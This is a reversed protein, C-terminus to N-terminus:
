LCYVCMGSFTGVFNYLLVACLEHSTVNYVIVNRFFRRMKCSIEIYQTMVVLDIQSLNQLPYVCIGSFTVECNYRLVVCLVPSIVDFCHFAHFDAGSHMLNYHIVVKIGVGNM